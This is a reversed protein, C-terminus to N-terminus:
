LLATTVERHSAVAVVLSRPSDDFLREQVGKSLRQFLSAM